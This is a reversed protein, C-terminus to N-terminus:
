GLRLPGALHVWEYRREYGLRENVRRMPANGLDNQTRLYRLGARQAAAIQAQKLALAIGRGRVRRAVGTMWHQYTDDTFRGVIAFGVVVGDELAVVSLERSVLPGFHREHWTAFDGSVMQIASPIDAEAELAVEYAGRDHEPTAPVIEIGEPIGPEVAVASLDLTVDQMRGIEEFGCAGYYGLSDLDDARVVVYFREKGLQKAHESARTHLATGVGRRRHEAVVRITLYAFEGERDGGFKSTSAAGVPEGDCYALLDLHDPQKRDDVVVERPMPTEPHVRNRVEVYTDIDAESLVPRVEIV